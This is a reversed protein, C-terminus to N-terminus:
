RKVQLNIKDGPKHQFLANVLADFNQVQQDDVKTIVDGTRLGGQAAPSGPEVDRVAVGGPVPEARIGLFPRNGKPQAPQQGAGAQQTQAEVRLATERNDQPTTVRVTTGPKLDALTAPKGDQTVKADAALTHTVETGTQDTMTLQNGKVSVVKGEHTETKDEALAPATLFAALALVALCLALVRHM